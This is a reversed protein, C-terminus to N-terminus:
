AQASNTEDWKDFKEMVADYTKSSIDPLSKGWSKTAEEFGKQFADKMEKMKEPDGGSLAEAFDLIRDSTANVGWYGDEGIDAQAQTKTAADVTYNGSALFQWMDTAQGYSNAQKSILEKVLNQLQDVSAQADAKLRAILEQNPAYTLKKDTSPEYVAAADESVADGATKTTVAETKVTNYANTYSEASQSINTIGNVSM